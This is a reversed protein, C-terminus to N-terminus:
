SAKLGARAMASRVGSRGWDIPGDPDRPIVAPAGSASRNNLSPEAARGGNVRQGSAETRGNGGDAPNRASTQKARADRQGKLKTEVLELARDMPLATPTRGEKIDLEWAANVLLWAYDMAHVPKGTEADLMVTGDDARMMPNDSSLGYKAPDKDAMAQVDTKWKAIGDAVRKEEALRDEEAKKEADTAKKAEAKELEERAVRAATEAPTEDKEEADSTMVNIFDSFNAGHDKALMELVKRFQKKSVAEGLPALKAALERAEALKKDAERDKKLVNPDVRITRQKGKGDKDEPAKKSPDAGAGDSKSEAASGNAVPKATGTEKGEAAAAEKKAVFARAAAGADAPASTETAAPAAGETSM